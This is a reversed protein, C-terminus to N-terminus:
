TSIYIKKVPVKVSNRQRKLLYQIIFKPFAYNKIDAKKIWFLGKDLDMKQQLEISAFRGEIVQHTLKQRFVDSFTISEFKQKGRWYGKRLEKLVGKEDLGSASEILLFEFLNHWIDNEIRQRIALQEKHEFLIYNFWRKKVLLKKSKVPLLHIKEQLFAKCYKTFPCHECLPVPKCIVAGFDMIAQNYIGPQMNDLLSNALQTFVKKGEGSDIPDNIDFIRALIRFVNGDLVAHPENFAFSAVAAATYPGIGKLKRLDDYTRPFVGNLTKSIYRATEILNKCRSYYGLGEWYKYIKQDRAKALKHVNPFAKIFRQYYVLGQEVRTQQLIIESLWIKYPDKEGKWPM